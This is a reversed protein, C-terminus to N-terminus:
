GNVVSSGTSPTTSPGSARWSVTASTGPRMSPAASPAPEPVLEERVELARPQEDVDEVRRLGIEVLAEPRDVALERRVAGPEIADRLDDDQVLDVEESSGGSSSKASSRM